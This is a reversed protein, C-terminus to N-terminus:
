LSIRGVRLVLWASVALLCLVVMQIVLGMGPESACLADRM